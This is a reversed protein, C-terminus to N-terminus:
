PEDETYHADENALPRQLLAILSQTVIPLTKRDEGKFGHIGKGGHLTSGKLGHIGKGGHLTSGKLGHIGKGGHLTSYHASYESLGSCYVNICREYM